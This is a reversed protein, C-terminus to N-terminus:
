GPDRRLHRPRGDTKRRLATSNESRTARTRVAGRYPPETPAPLPDLLASCLSDYIPTEIM